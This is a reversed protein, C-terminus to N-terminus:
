ERLKKNIADITRNIQASVRTVATVLETQAKIIQKPTGKAFATKAKDIERGYSSIEGILEDHLPKVKSPPEVAKLDGVVKDVARKFGELTKQDQAPTSTSTIQSSLRDFTSAFDNQARNVADVYDNAAKSDSGCGAVLLALVVLAAALRHV